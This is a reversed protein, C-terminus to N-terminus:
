SASRSCCCARRFALQARHETIGFSDILRQYDQQHIGKVKLQMGSVLAM